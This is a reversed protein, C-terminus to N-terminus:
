EPNAILQFINNYDIEMQFFKIKPKHKLINKITDKETRSCRYGFYIAEIINEEEFKLPQFNESNNANFYILRIENEYEWEKQKTLFCENFEFHNKPTINFNKKPYEVAAFLGTIKNNRKILRPSLKYKICIGRHSNAYHAWMLTNLYPEKKKNTKLDIESVFCKIRVKELSELFFQENKQTELNKFKHKAALTIPPDLPDNFSKPSSVTITNNTIDEISYMNISRFSFFTDEKVQLKSCEMDILMYVYKDYYERSISEYYPNLSCLIEISQILKHKDNPSKFKHTSLYNKLLEMAEGIINKAITADEIARVEDPLTTFNGEKVKEFIYKATM